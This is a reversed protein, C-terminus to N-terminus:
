TAKKDRVRDEKNELSINICEECEALEKGGIEVVITFEERASSFGSRCKFGPVESSHRIMADVLFFTFLAKENPNDYIVLSQNLLAIWM